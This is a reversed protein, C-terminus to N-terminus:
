KMDGWLTQAAAIAAPGATETRLVRPGLSVAKFGQQCLGDIEADTLGGEPGICLSLGNEPEAVQSLSLTAGPQLVLRTERQDPFQNMYDLLSMPGVVEPVTARGCQECASHTVSQWHSHRKDLRPGKLRVETRRTFVPQISRVGLETAKQLTLDMREGRSIGQILTIALASEAAAPVKELLQVRVRSRECILVSALWQAGHGDFLLLADGNRLRLVQRAYHARDVPLDLEAPQPPLPNLYLRHKSM